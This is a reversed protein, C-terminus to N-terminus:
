PLVRRRRGGSVMSSAPAGKAQMAVQAPSIPDAIDRLWSELWAVGQQYAIVEVHWEGDPRQGCAAIASTKRDDSIDVAFSVPAKAAIESKPDTGADWAGAPFPPEAVANALGGGLGIGFSHVFLYLTM